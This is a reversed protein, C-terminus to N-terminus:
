PREGKAERAKGQRGKGSGQRLKVFVLVILVQKGDHRVLYEPTPPPGLGSAVSKVVFFEVPRLGLHRHAVGRGAPDRPGAESRQGAWM